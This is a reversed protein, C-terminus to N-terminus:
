HGGGVLGQSMCATPAYDAWGGGRAAQTVGVGQSMCAELACGGGGGLGAVVGNGSVLMSLIADGGRGDGGGGGRSEGIVGKVAAVHMSAASPKINRAPLKM